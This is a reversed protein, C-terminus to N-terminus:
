SIARSSRSTSRTAWRRSAGPSACCMKSLDTSGSRTKAVIIALRKLVPDRADENLLQGANSIAALPNRIEHAISATLRGMAALKLQQARDEVDRVDEIFIVFEDISQAAPRACRARLRSEPAVAMGNEGTPVITNSWLGESRGGESWAFAAALRQSGPHRRPTV